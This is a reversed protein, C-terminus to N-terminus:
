SSEHVVRPTCHRGTIVARTADSSSLNASDRAANDSAVSRPMPWGSSCASRVQRIASASPSRRRETGVIERVDVVNRQKPKEPAGSIGVFEGLEDAAVVNAQPRVDRGHQASRGRFESRRHQWLNAGPLVWQYAASQHEAHQPRAFLAGAFANAAVALEAFM